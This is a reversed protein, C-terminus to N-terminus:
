KIVKDARALVNPPITLGIQKATKLNIVLEFKTPQQVPLDAPIAGKLIKDVYFAARRFLNAVDAGYAMLGGLEVDIPRPYMAPLRTEAALEIAQSRHTGILTGPSIILADTREKTAVQFASYFDPKPPRVELRQVKMGLAHAIQETDKLMGSTTRGTPDYIIGVKRIKPLAERLLELRKGALEPSYNTTGTVNGGPHALSAVLGGGIPDAANVMVVPISLGAKKIARTATATGAVIVVPKLHVLEEALGTLRAEQGEASRHEIIVNKGEHYGLERLGQQFAELNIRDSQAPGGGVLYGIRPINKTQQAYAISAATLWVTTVLWFLSKSKM